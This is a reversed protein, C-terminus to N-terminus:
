SVQTEREALLRTSPRIPVSRDAASSSGAGTSPCAPSRVSAAPKCLHARARAVVKLLDSRAVDDRRMVLHVIPDNVLDELRPEVGAHAWDERRAFM